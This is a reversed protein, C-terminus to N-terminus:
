GTAPAVEEFLLRATEDLFTKLPTTAAAGYGIGTVTFTNPLANQVNRTQRAVFPQRSVVLYKGSPPNTKLFEKATDTTNPHRMTTTPPAPQLPTDIFVGNWPPLDSQEFVLRMMGAETTPAEAPPTWGNKFPLEAPTRLVTPSEKEKDLPRAGGLMFVTSLTLRHGGYADASENWQEVLYALGKRVAVVTAGLVLAGAYSRQPAPVADVLGLEKLFDMDEHSPPGGPIQYQHETERIWRKQMTDSLDNATIDDGVEIGHRRALDRLAKVPKGDPIHVLLAM